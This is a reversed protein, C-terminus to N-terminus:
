PRIILVTATAPLSQTWEFGLRRFTLTRNGSTTAGTSVVLARTGYLFDNAQLDSVLATGPTGVAIVGSRFQQYWQTWTNNVASFAM